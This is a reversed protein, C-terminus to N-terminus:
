AQFQVIRKVKCLNFSWICHSEVFRNEIEADPRTFPQKMLELNVTDIKGSRSVPDFIKFRREPEQLNAEFAAVCIDRLLLDLSDLLPNKIGRGSYM